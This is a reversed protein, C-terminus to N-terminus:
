STLLRRLPYLRGTKAGAYCAVIGRTCRWALGEQSTVPISFHLAPPKWLPEFSLSAIPSRCESAPNSIGFPQRPFVPRLYRPGLRLHAEPIHIRCRHRRPLQPTQSLALLDQGHRRIRLGSKKPFAIDRSAPAFSAGAAKTSATTVSLSICRCVM